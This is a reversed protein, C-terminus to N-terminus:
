GGDPDDALAADWYPRRGITETLFELFATVKLARLRTEPLLVHIAGEEQDSLATWDQMVPVLQGDQLPGHLVWTPFLVLGQGAVAAAILSEADNGRLNGAVPQALFAGPGQRFMWPRAGHGGKYILCNHGLLDAPVRPTGHQALYAPAAALVYTQAALRRSILRSEELVGIRVVVDAGDAVPDVFADTLVLEVELAPHRAQFAALHPAIHRRGFAVPANVRLTGRATQAGDRVEEGAMDLLLLAERVSELYRAGHDTLRLARTNRVLLTQGLGAELTSVHRSVSSVPLGTRRAVESFSGRTAVEVFLRLATLHIDKSM